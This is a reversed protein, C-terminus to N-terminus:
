KKTITKQVEPVYIAMPTHNATYTGLGGSYKDGYEYFQGLTFWIGKYGDIKQNNLSPYSSQAHMLAMGGFLFITTFFTRHFNM